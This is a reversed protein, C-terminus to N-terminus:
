FLLVDVQHKLHYHIFNNCKHKKKMDSALIYRCHGSIVLITYVHTEVNESERSLMTSAMNVSIVWFPKIKVIVLCKQFQDVIFLSFFCINDGDWIYSEFAQVCVCAFTGSTVDSIHLWWLQQLKLCTLIEHGVSYGCVSFRRCSAHTVDTFRLLGTSEGSVLCAARPEASSLPYLTADCRNSSVRPVGHQRLSKRITQQSRSISQKGGWSSLKVSVCMGISNILSFSTTLVIVSIFGISHQRM